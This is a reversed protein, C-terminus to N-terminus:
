AVAFTWAAIVAPADGHENATRASLVAGLLGSAITLARRAFPDSVACMALQREVWPADRLVGLM